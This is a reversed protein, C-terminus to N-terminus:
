NHFPKKLRLLALIDEDFEFDEKLIISKIELFTPSFIVLNWKFHKLYLSDVM